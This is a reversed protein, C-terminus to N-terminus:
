PGLMRALRVDDTSWATRPEAALRGFLWLRVREPELELLEAFRAITGGPDASLRAKCNLLHQTGDYAPDGLFPKPDIVLWPEREASLVNGAHLDTALLTMHRDEAALQALVSLGEEVLAADPWRAAAARTEECWHDIMRSLPRFPNPAPPVRWLRLLVSAILRDQEREPVERLSTGPRCRELLMAGIGEDAALVRVAPDGAWFRLAAIEHDAEFHPMGIKLVAESGDARWAPAVWACTADFPEGLRLTWRGALEAILLPLQDLWAARASVPVFANTEM